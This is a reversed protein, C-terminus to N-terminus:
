QTQHGLALISELRKMDIETMIRRQCWHECGCYNLFVCQPVYGLRKAKWGGALLNVACAIGIVGKTEGAEVKMRNIASGHHVIVVKAGYNETIAVTKYVSCDSSCKRCLYGEGEKVAKCDRNKKRMCEPVFVYKKAAKRFGEKFVESLIHAGAMNLYYEAEPKSCMVIDERWRYTKKVKNRFAEANKVYCGLVKKAEKEFGSAVTKCISLIRERESIPHSKFFCNWNKMRILEEEYEGTAELWGCLKEFDIWSHNKKLRMKYDAMCWASCIGKGKSFFPRFYKTQQRFQNIKKCIIKQYPKIAYSSSCHHNMYVGITLMELAYEPVSRVEELREQCIYSTFQELERGAIKIVEAIQKDAFEGLVHYFEETDILYTIGEALNEM